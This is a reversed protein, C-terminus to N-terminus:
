VSVCTWTLFEKKGKWGSPGWAYNGPRDLATTTSLSTSAAGAKPARHPRTSAKSVEKSKNRAGEHTGLGEAVADRSSGGNRSSPDMITNLSDPKQIRLLETPTPLSIDSAPIKNKMDKIIDTIPIMYARPAREDEKVAFIHGLVQNNRIVWAGSDGLVLIKNARSWYTKM